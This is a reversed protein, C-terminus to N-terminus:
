SELRQLMRQVGSESMELARAIQPLSAGEEYRARLVAEEKAERARVEIGHQRRAEDLATLDTRTVAM